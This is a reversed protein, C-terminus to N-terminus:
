SGPRLVSDPKMRLTNRTRASVILFECPSDKMLEAVKSRASELDEAIGMWVVKDIAECKFIDFPALM